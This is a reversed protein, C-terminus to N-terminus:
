SNHKRVGRALEGHPEDLVNALLSVAKAIAAKFKAEGHRELIHRTRSPVQRQHVCDTQPVGAGTAIHTARWEPEGELSPLPIRTVAFQEGFVEFPLYGLTETKAYPPNGDLIFVSLPSCPALALVPPQGAQQDNQTNTPM